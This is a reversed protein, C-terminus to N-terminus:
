VAHRHDMAPSEGAPLADLHSLRDALDALEPFPAPAGLTTPQNHAAEADALSRSRLWAALEPHEAEWPLTQCVFPRPRWLSQHATLFRDLAQFRELLNPAASM